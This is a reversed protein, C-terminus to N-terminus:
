DGKTDYHKLDLSLYCSLADLAGTSGPGKLPGQVGATLSKASRGRASTIHMRQAYMDKAGGRNSFGADARTICALSM